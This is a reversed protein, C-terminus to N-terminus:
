GKPAMKVFSELVVKESTAFKISLQDRVIATVKGEGFSPHTVRNGVSFASVHVVPEPVVVAVVKKARTVKPPGVPAPKKKIIAM